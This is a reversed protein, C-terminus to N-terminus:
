NNFYDCILKEDRNNKSFKKLIKHVISTNSEELEKKCVAKKILIKNYKVNAENSEMLHTKLKLLETNYKLISQRLNLVKRSSM